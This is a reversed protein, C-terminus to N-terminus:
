ARGWGLLPGKFHDMKDANRLARGTCNESILYYKGEITNVAM